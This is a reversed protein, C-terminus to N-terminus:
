DVSSSGKLNHRRCDRLSLSSEDLNSAEDTKLSVDSGRLLM